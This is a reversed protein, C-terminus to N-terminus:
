LGSHLGVNQCEKFLPDYQGLIPWSPESSTVARHQPGGTDSGDHSGGQAHVLHRCTPAAAVEGERLGPLGLVCSAVM